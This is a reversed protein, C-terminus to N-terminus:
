NYVSSSRVTVKVGMRNDTRLYVRSPESTDASSWSGAFDADVFCQIGRSSDPKLKLGDTPTCKLYRVIRTLAKKHSMKPDACFRSCQHVAFLIDPRTGCLYNLMGVISRYSWNSKRHEGEEDKHLLKNPKAPTDHLRSYKFSVCDIIRQILFPQTLNYEYQDNTETKKETKTDIGLYTAFDGEDTLNFSSQLSKILDDIKWQNPCFM